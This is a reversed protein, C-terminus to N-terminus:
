DENGRNLKWWIAMKLFIGSEPGYIDMYIYIYGYIYIDMYIYGYIYIDYGYIVNNTIYGTFYGWIGILDWSSIM